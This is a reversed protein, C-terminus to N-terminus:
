VVAAERRIISEALKICSTRFDIFSEHSEGRRGGRAIASELSSDYLGPLRGRYVCYFRRYIGPLSLPSPLPPDAAINIPQLRPSLPLGGDHTGVLDRRVAETWAARASTNDPFGQYISNSVGSYHERANESSYVGPPLGVLVVIFPWAHNKRVKQRKTTAVVTLGQRQSSSATSWNASTGAGQIDYVTTDEPGPRYIRDDPQAEVGGEADRTEVTQVGVDFTIRLNRLIADYREDALLIDVSDVSACPSQYVSSPETGGDSDYFVVSDNDSM